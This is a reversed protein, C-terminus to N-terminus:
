AGVSKQPEPRPKAQAAAAIAAAIDVATGELMIEKPIGTTQEIHKATDYSCHRVGKCLQHIYQPTLGTKRAIKSKAGHKM